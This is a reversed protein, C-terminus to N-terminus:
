RRFIVHRQDNEMILPEPVFKSHKEFFKIDNLKNISPKVPRQPEYLNTSGIGYLSSEIDCPNNSLVNNYYGGIMKPMNIGYAPHNSNYPISQQKYTRQLKQHNIAQQEKKYEGPCNKLHTSSM